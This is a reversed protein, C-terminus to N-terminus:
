RGAGVMAKLVAASVGSEKLQILADTSTDFECKSGSIKAIVIARMLAPKPWRSSTRTECFARAPLLSPPRNGCSGRRGAVTLSPTAKSQSPTRPADSLTIELASGNATFTGRYNQGGEQLSFTNDANLQLQDAPAQASVYTAPLKLPAAPPPPPSPAQDWGPSVWVAGSDTYIKDGQISYRSSLGNASHTLVLTGGDVAFRGSSLM